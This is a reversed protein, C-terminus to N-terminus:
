RHIKVDSGISLIGYVDKSDQPSLAICGLTKAGPTAPSGHIAVEGGLSIWWGGYPNNPDNAPIVRGDLGNYSKQQSRKDIIRFDGPQPPQDGIMFPFRGAYLDGVLLTIERTSLNVDARFPGPVVKLETSPVLILPDHVDSSNINQLLRYEVNYQKAVDFLTEGKRVQHAPVICHERSYIVKGALSDLWQFLLARQEPPLETHAYHPTLKALAARYKAEAVLQEAEALDRRLAYAAIAPSASIPTETAPQATGIAPTDPPPPSTSQAAPSAPSEAPTEFTSRSLPSSSSTPTIPPATPPPMAGSDLQPPYTGGRTQRGGSSSFSPDDYGITPPSGGQPFDILPSSNGGATDAREAPDAKNLAVYVGYLVGLLVVLLAASKLTNV